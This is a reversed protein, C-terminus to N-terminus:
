MGCKIKKKFSKWVFWAMFLAASWNVLVLGWWVGNVGWLFSFLAFVLAPAAIQRYIGVWFIMGPRKIGQMVSNCQFLLIYSYFTIAQIYLYALGITLVKQDATFLGVLQRAFVLIPTYVALMIILGFLLSYTYSKWVRDLRGAGNNQGAMATLATNLGITPVLAIQEIRIGAGYGAVAETGYKAIFFNIVFTGLAVTVFNMVPPFSQASIEKFYGADPKFNEKDLKPFTKSRIVRWSLYVVGSAQILVTALAIGSERMGPILVQGNISFGFMLLPDLAINLLFGLILFNRYTKTDGRATLAANLVNNLVFFIAGGVIIQMYNMTVALLDATPNFLKFIPSLSGFLLVAMVVTAVIGFIMAQAHYKLAKSEEGGGLSNAILATTGASIGAGTAVIIFFVPFSLSLAALTETSLQGGWYTDVVNYMTNFFFGTSAPAAIKLLLRPISDKVFDM